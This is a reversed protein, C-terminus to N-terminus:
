RFKYGQGILLYTGFLPLTHWGQQIWIDTPTWYIWCPLLVRRIPRCPCIMYGYELYNNYLGEVVSERFEVDPNLVWDNKSAANETFTAVKELTFKKDSM